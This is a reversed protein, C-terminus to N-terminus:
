MYRFYLESMCKLNKFFFDTWKAANPYNLLMNNLTTADPLSLMSQTAGELGTEPSFQPSEM